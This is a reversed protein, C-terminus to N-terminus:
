RRPLMARLDRNIPLSFDKSALVINDTTRVIRATVYVNNGGIAYTGVLAAQAEHQQVINRLERSLILEGTGERVFLSERMKVEIMPAGARTMASAFQEGLLRGLTSSEAMNDINAFSTAILPKGELLPANKLLQRAASENVGILDVVPDTTASSKAGSSSCGAAGLLGLSLVTAAVAKHYRSILM